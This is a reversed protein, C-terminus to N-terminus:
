HSSNLRTSKRDLIAAGDLGVTVPSGQFTVTAGEPLGSLTLGVVKEVGGPNPDLFWGPNSDDIDISFDPKVTLPGSLDGATGNDNRDTQLDAATKGDEATHVDHGPVTTGDMHGVDASASHSSLSRNNM